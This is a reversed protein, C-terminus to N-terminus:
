AQHQKAGEAMTAFFENALSKMILAVRPKTPNDTLSQGPAAATENPGTTHDSPATNSSCGALLVWGM